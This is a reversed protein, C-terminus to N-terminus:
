QSTPWAASFDIALPLVYNMSNHWSYAHWVWGPNDEYIFWAGVTYTYTVSTNQQTAPLATWVTQTTYALSTTSLAPLSAIGSASVAGDPFGSTSGNYPVSQSFTWSNSTYSSVNNANNPSSQKYALTSSSLDPAGVELSGLSWGLHTDDNAVLNIDCLGSHEIILWQVPTNYSTNDYYVGVTVLGELTLSGHPPTYSGQTSGSPSFPVYVSCPTVDYLGSPINGPPPNPSSGGSEDLQLVQGSALTTVVKKVKQMFRSLDVPPSVATCDTRGVTNPFQESLGIRLQNAKDRRPEILLAMSPAQIYHRLIRAKALVQKHDLTPELLLVPRNHGLASQIAPTHRSLEEPKLTSGDLVILEFDQSRKAGDSAVLAGQRRLQESFMEKPKGQSYVLFRLDAKEVGM